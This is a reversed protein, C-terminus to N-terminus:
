SPQKCRDTEDGLERTGYPRCIRVCFIGASFTIAFEGDSGTVLDIRIERIAPIGLSFGELEAHSQRVAFNETSVIGREFRFLFRHTFLALDKNVHWGDIVIAGFGRNEDNMVSRTLELQHPICEVVESDGFIWIALQRREDGNGDFVAAVIAFVALTTEFVVGHGIAEGAEDM